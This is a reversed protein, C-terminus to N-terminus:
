EKENWLIIKRYKFTAPIDIIRQNSSGRFRLSIDKKDIIFRGDVLIDINNLIAAIDDNDIDHYVIKDKELDILEELTFGTYLWITKDPMSRKVDEILLRVPEHHPALPEGGLISLGTIYESDLLQLIKQHTQETYYEGYNYDWTEPNFCEKCHFPCGSVFLSVRVGPGNAIDTPKIAAYNM